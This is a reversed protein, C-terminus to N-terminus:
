ASVQQVRSVSIDTMQVNALTGVSYTIHATANPLKLNVKLAIFGNTALAVPLGRAQGDFAPDWVAVIECNTLAYGLNAITVAGSDSFALLVLFTGILGTPFTISTDSITLGISDVLTTRTAGLPKAITPSSGKVFAEDGSFNAVQPKRLEVEYTVWLEGINLSSSPLGATAINVKGLDYSKPDEGVPVAGSRVYQVNYPNEKPDCEIPHIFSESPKADTAFYENLLEAKNLPSPATVRYDTHLM